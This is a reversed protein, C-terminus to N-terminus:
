VHSGISMQSESERIRKIINTTSTDPIYDLIEVRGGLEEVILTEPLSAKTYDGGKAYIDPKIQKILEIPTNDSFPIVHDVSSLAALVQMRDSLSNVPREPGKLRKISEDSNVGIILVDGLEKAKKLYTIHGPHIIDFCGNTFVVTKGQEKYIKCQAVMEEASFVMKDPPSFYELLENNHIHSTGEKHVVITAAASAVEAAEQTTARAALALAMTSVFTDGAGAAKSNESPKTYTKFPKKGKEFIVSGEKDVTVACIHAGTSHLIKKGKKMIQDIRKGESTAKIGLLAIAEGYNPKVATPAIAKFRTLDKSDGIVVKNYKQQLQAIHEIVRETIVGYGYDSVIIVDMQPFLVDIENILTSELEESMRTTTGYDYRVVLQTDAMVRVKSLTSREPVTIIASTDVGANKLKSIIVMAERDNGGVSLFTTKAGLAAANYATNAAGGPVEENDKLNVIPVPAERCIRESNGKLYVDLMMDGIILAKVTKFRRIIANLQTEM